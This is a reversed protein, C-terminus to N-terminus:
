AEPDALLETGNGLALAKLWDLFAHARRQKPLFVCKVQWRGVATTQVLISKFSGYVKM